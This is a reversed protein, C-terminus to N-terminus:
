YSKRREKYVQSTQQLLSWSSKSHLSQNERWFLRRWGKEARNVKGKAEQLEDQLAAKVEDLQKGKRLAMETEFLLFPVGCIDGYLKFKFQKFIIVNSQVLINFIQIFKANVIDGLRKM